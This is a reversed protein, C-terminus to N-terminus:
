ASKNLEPIDDFRLEIQFQKIANYNSLKYNFAM